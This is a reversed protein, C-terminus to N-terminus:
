ADLLSHPSELMPLALAWAEKASPAAIEVDAISYAFWMDDRENLDGDLEGSRILTQPPHAVIIRKGLAKAYGLEVLTGYADPADLWVFVVDSEELAQTCLRITEKRGAYTVICGGTIGHANTSHGCGHDCGVFFPGAFHIGEGLANVASEWKPRIEDSMADMAWDSQGLDVPSVIDSRWGSKTIKGALYVSVSKTMIRRGWKNAALHRLAAM